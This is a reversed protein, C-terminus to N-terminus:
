CCWMSKSGEGAGLSLWRSSSRGRSPRSAWLPSGRRVEPTDTRTTDGAPSKPGLWPEPLTKPMKELSPCSSSVVAEDLPRKLHATFLSHHHPLM